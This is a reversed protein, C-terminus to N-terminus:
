TGCFLNLIGTSEIFLILMIVPAVYRIIFKYLKKSKFKHDNLEMEHIIFDPKLIWGVLICTLLAVLPMLFNGCLYDVIDLLQGTQGNPLKFEFYLKNFGLCIIIALIAILISNIV